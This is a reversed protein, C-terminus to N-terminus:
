RLTAQGLSNGWGIVATSTILLFIGVLVTAFTAGSVGRWEKFVIGWINGCIIIFSMHLAWSSFDYTGMKTMGMGYFFFQFYWIVGSLACLSLVRVTQVGSTSRYSSFTRNRYNLYLCWVTNTSCGGLLIICLVANNQFLPDVGVAL